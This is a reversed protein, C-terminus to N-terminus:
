EMKEGGRVRRGAQKGSLTPPRLRSGREPIRASVLLHVLHVAQVLFSDWIIFVCM